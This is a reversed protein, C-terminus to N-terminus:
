MCDMPNCLTPCLQVSKSNRNICQKIKINENSIAKDDETTLNIVITSNEKVVKSKITTNIKNDTGTITSNNNTDETMNTSTNQSINDVQSSGNIDDNSHGKTINDTNNEAVDVTNNKLTDNEEVIVNITTESPNFTDNGEYKISINHSGENITINSVGQNDTSESKQNDNDSIKLTADIIPKNAVDTLKATVTKEQQNFQADIRTDTKKNEIELIKECPNYQDSGNYSFKIRNIGQDSKSDISIKGSADTKKDVSTNDSYLVNMTSDKIVEDDVTKLTAIITDGQQEVDIKTDKKNNEIEIIKECPNYQDNGAYSLKIRNIGPTLNADITIRGNADTKKDM